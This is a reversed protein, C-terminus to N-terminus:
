KGDICIVPSFVLNLLQQSAMLFTILFSITIIATGNSSIGNFNTVFRIIQSLLSSTASGAITVSVYSSISNRPEENISNKISNENIHDNRSSINISFEVNEVIQQPVLVNYFSIVVFIWFLLILPIVFYVQKSLLISDSTYM